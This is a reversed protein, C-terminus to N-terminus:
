TTVGEHDGVYIIQPDNTSTEQIGSKKEQKAGQFVLSARLRIM